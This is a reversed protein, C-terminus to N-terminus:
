WEKGDDIHVELGESVYAQCARVRGSQGTQVYCDQCAGILCFGARAGGGFEARRLHRQNVLIATLLTDGALAQAPRGDITFSIAARATEAVRVLQGSM